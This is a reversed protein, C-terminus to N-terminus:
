RHFPMMKGRLDLGTLSDIVGLAKYVSAVVTPMQKGVQKHSLRGDPRWHPHTPQFAPTLLLSAAAGLLLQLGPCFCTTELVVRQHSKLLIWQARLRPGLKVHSCRFDLPVGGAM